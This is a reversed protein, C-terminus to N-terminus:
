GCSSSGVVARRRRVRGDVLRGSEDEECFSNACRGFGLGDSLESGDPDWGLADAELGDMM